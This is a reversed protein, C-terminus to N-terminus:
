DFKLVDQVRKVIDGQSTTRGYWSSFPLQYSQFGSARSSPSPQIQGGGGPAPFSQGPNPIGYSSSPSNYTPYPKAVSVSGIGSSSPPGYANNTPNYYFPNSSSDYSYSPTWDNYGPVGYVPKVPPGYTISINENGSYPGYDVSTSANTTTSTSPTTGNTIITITNTTAESETTTAQTTTQQQRPRVVPTIPEVDNDYEEYSYYDPDRRNKNKNRRRQQKNRNQGRGGDYDYDYDYNSYMPRRVQTRKRNRMRPGAYDYSDYDSLYEPFRRRNNYNSYRYKRYPMVYKSFTARKVAVKQTESASPVLYERASEISGGIVDSYRFPPIQTFHLSTDETPEGVQLPKTVTEWSPTTTITAQPYINISTPPANSHLVPDYQFKISGHQLRGIAISPFVTALLFGLLTGFTRAQRQSPLADLRTLNGTDILSYNM